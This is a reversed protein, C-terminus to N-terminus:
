RLAARIREIISAKSQRKSSAERWRAAGEQRRRGGVIEAPVARPRLGACIKTAQGIKHGCCHARHQRNGEKVGQMGEWGMKIM